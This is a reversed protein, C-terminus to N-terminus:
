QAASVEIDVSLKGDASTKNAVKFKTIQPNTPTPDFPMVGGYIGIQTGDNGMWDENNALEDSLEYFTDAKFLALDDAVKKTNTCSSTVRSFPNSGTGQYRTNIFVNGGGFAINTRNSSDFARIICNTWTTSDSYISTWGYAQGYESFGLVICNNLAVTHNGNDNMYSQIVCNNLSTSCIPYTYSTRSGFNKIYCNVFTANDYKTSINGDDFYCRLFSPSKMSGKFLYELIRLGELNLSYIDDENQELNFNLRGSIITPTQELMMGAGRITVAKTITTATFTGASLTIVDGPEAAEHAKILADAGYYVTVEGDHSLTGILSSQAHAGFCGMLTVTLFLLLKKM